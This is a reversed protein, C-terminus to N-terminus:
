TIVTVWGVFPLPHISHLNSRYDRDILSCSYTSSSFPYSNWEYGWDSNISTWAQVASSRVSGDSAALWLARPVDPPTALWDCHMLYVYLLHWGIATSVSLGKTLWEVPQVGASAFFFMVFVLQVEPSSMVWLAWEGSCWTQGSVLDRKYNTKIQCSCHKPHKPDANTGKCIQSLQDLTVLASLPSWLAALFGTGAIPWSPAQDFLVPWWVRRM